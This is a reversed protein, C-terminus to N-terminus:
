AKEVTWRPSGHASIFAKAKGKNICKGKTSESLQLALHVDPIIIYEDADWPGHERLSQAGWGPLLLNSSNVTPEIWSSPPGNGSLILSSAPLVLFSDMPHLINPLLPHTPVQVRLHRSPLMGQVPYVQLSARSVGERSRCGELARDINGM